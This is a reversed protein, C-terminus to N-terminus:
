HRSGRHHDLANGGGALTSQTNVTSGSLTSDAGLTIADGYSQTSTTDVSGGNILLTGGANSTLSAAKVAQALITVGSSNLALVGLRTTQGVAGSLTIAGTGANLTLAKAGEVAGTVVIDGAGAGTNVTLNDGLNLSSGFNVHNNTTSLTSAASVTVAGTYTQTGSTTVNAGINSAGAVSLNTLGSLAGDIDAAGTIILANNGGALTSQTNVTSGALTRDGGSLTVAGAYIQTGTSTVNAGINSTGSVSLNTVGSFTGDIDAAGTITLANGGGALTSQTNITTGTLMRDGGSLTVAGTYTQTGSTTVNAGINSTGSVSLNTVGTVAGDIDAAGTITLASGGGALTSQTSITSGTLTRDGGSLTVAGTYTQTGSTTVNAGMNSTGSVSLNMVGTVAGDIDAAGTITLANGGGALTSQTNITTGTLTTDAGLTIADGYSQTGTTDVSGGNILMTGGANSVLSAAKVTQALTTTGTSNLTLVGLRTTQGVAGSLTIAGTGASLSLAKAGDVAGTLVIDGAGAGTNITLNEALTLSGGLTVNSNTTALTSAASVTVSGSYTQTGSTTVNAGINSTGSVSLNTVGTVAGDIDAAGTITLASGGGALTSQTSITSGTLTRDGGSLTVAGTYTQTGSTTVNAGMNSTGSVSLNTVGTVAGDIDAAGTITLANGGGALTSQTNITTGTLTTDAGLTIADGYSQTGTTDVSGGNILMTGGANSVLSAAKVTQALTTTGTSNLTLVGLRTTQGVAGSLTIAGTGASLSLAKAGDVAGTLVIDGAGAGTNITLNEALTLSGGLTVNSNTTALTSAASVTVSGSYTQTGSTTVNAGINSTGSVSLNMVGTVAGDIDAAGTITLANGGGALTSQTNVTSGSLTSDAGLTIADGYSQTSTTDVSGGNILLTGGANSTLSAAKVAEALITVGSSNLALVGLRTTQGVAGSLTIAGTGASLSLAKAGDVAGTLVIDGANAGTNITLNEALTLSGGLTVNSNTTALTSAASVTVSGSYTQTGSTTVNAGINSTGSVSLNTVDTVAGDIDAAGTITLANGGGAFTSQTNITSGTLTRDGGSLTVAGTYTQTGSTTVNAGINSTGSVSLNTVGTVAGDIDAAGTITLANGGGALTSQTNITSGTLTRDGGSLTVAGSYTQVGSSTINGGLDAAGSVSLSVLNTAHGDVDVAGTITLANTGGDLTSQTNITSGTLTRAGGSLIVAGTYTQTGTTTVNAGINTAGSVSLQSIGSFAGDIDADGTITLANNGGALTSRNNISSGTLTRAGGSLTVAGTYTQTGTTTVDAGLNSAGSVSLSSLGTYAGDVDAAGSLTLANGGGALTSQTHITLGTLTRAGGSLTVAGTYAQTGTTRVDAAVTVPGAVTLSSLATSGGVAGNLVVAGTNQLTLAAAGNIAGLTLQGQNKFTSAASLTIAGTVGAATSASNYLVGSDSVGTGAVTLANAISYGALDLAAANSVTVAGTGWARAHGVQALGQSVTSAGSLTNDGSLVLTGAGSKTLGFAGGSESIVGSVTLTDGSGVDFFSNATLTIAGAWSSTADKLTGGALTLVEGQVDVGLLDLAAGSAVSTGSSSDGLALAHGVALTGASVLTVGQYTNQGSLTLVGSGAKTLGGAGSIVGGFSTSTGNGGATLTASGLLIQGSGAISGVTDAYGDLGWTGNAEVTVATSNSLANIAASKLTGASIRTAGTFTNVGSLTLTGTGTKTFGGTGSMVGGFTTNAHSGGATLTASGLSINGPGAISGVTDAFGNLSWTANNEVTVATGDTLLNVVGNTLTGAGVSMAGIFTQAASLTLNGAGAKSFSVGTGGVAGSYTSTGSQTVTLTRGNALSMGSSGTLGSTRISIDGTSANTTTLVGSLTVAGGWLTIPGAVTAASGITINGTNSAHGITLGTIGSSYRLFATNFTSSFSNGATPAVTLAGTTNINLNGAISVNDSIISVNSTSATVASGSRFGIFTDTLNNAFNIASSGTNLSIAGSNALLNLTGGQDQLYGLRIGDSGTSSGRSTFSVGGGNSAILSNTGAMGFGEGGLGSTSSGSADSRWVIADAAANTSTVTFTSTADHWGTGAGAGGTVAIAEIKVKGAGANISVNGTTLFGRSTTTRGAIYVDGNATSLTTGQLFVAPRDFNSAVANATLPASITTGSVAYGDGVTLGNWSANGSGGGMWLHGGGTSINVGSYAFIGGGTTEGDSNAWLVVDGGATTISRSAQLSIDGSAKILLDGAGAGASTNLNANVNVVGGYVTMPGAMTIANALSIASTNTTKGITLSGLNNGLSWGSTSFASTFSDGVSQITLAGSTRLSLGSGLSMANANLTIAGTTNGSVGNWGLNVGANFKIGPDNVAAVGTLTIAGSSSYISATAGGDMLIGARERATGTGASGGLTIAGSDTHIQPGNFFNIGVGHSDGRNNKGGIGDILVTGAGGTKILTNTVVDVGIAYDAAASSVWDAGQWGRGRIAVNGNASSGSADITTQDLWLGRYRQGVAGEASGEAYGSGDTGGGLTISGGYSRLTAGTMLIAGGAAGDSNSSLVINGGQTSIDVGSSAVIDKSAILRLQDNTSVTLDNSLEIKGGFVSIPGTVSLASGLTINTTNTSKGITLGSLTSGFNWGSTSFASTFSNAASEIRLAGTGAITKSTPNAADNQLVLTGANITTTGSYTNSATLTLTNSGMKTLSGTGSIANGMTVNDSRHIWVSTNNVIAGALSGAATNNGLYLAGTSVTTNGTFSNNATLFLNAAGTKTLSGTGTAMVGAITLNGDTQTTLAFAGTFANGATPAISLTGADVQIEAAAALTINGTLTNAGSVSRVAGNNSVGTGSLSLADALTIGGTLELAAGGSITTGGASSGLGDSHTVRLVGGTINTAGSYTNAGSLIQTGNGSKTLGVAGSIVGSYDHSGTAPNITITGGTASINNSGLLGGATLTVTGATIGSVGGFSGITLTGSNSYTLSGTGLSATIASISGTGTLSYSQNTGLLALGYATMNGTIEPAKSHIQIYGTSTNATINGLWKIGKSPGFAPNAADALAYIPDILGGTTNSAANAFLGNGTSASNIKAGQFIVSGNAASVSSAASYIGYDSAANTAPTYGSMTVNGGTSTIGGVSFYLGDSSRAYGVLNIDGSATIAGQWADQRIGNLGGAGSIYISGASAVIPLRIYTAGFSTNNNLGDMVINGTDSRVGQTTSGGDVVTLYLGIGQMSVGKLMIDGKARLTNTSNHVTIGGSPGDIGTSFNAYGTMTLNGNFSRIVQQYGWMAVGYANGAANNMGASAGNAFVNIDGYALVATNDNDMRFGAGGANSGTTTSNITISGGATPATTSNGAVIGGGNVYIGFGGRATISINGGTSQVFRSNKQYWAWNNTTTSTANITIDGNARFLGTGYIYAGELGGSSTLNISGNAVLSGSLMQTGYSSGGTANITINGGATPATLSNGAVISSAIDVDLGGLSGRATISVNGGTSQISRGGTLVVGWTGTAGTSSGGQITINGNSLISGSAGELRLTHASSTNLATISIAGHAVLFATDLQLAHSSSGTANITITGGSTPNAESNAAILKGYIYAGGQGSATIAINGATTQFVKNTEVFMGWNGGSTSSSTISIDGVARNVGTGGFYSARMGTSSATATISGFATMAGSAQQLGYGSSGTGNISISGGSTPTSVNNAAVLSTINLYVGSSGVGTVSINGATSQITGSSELVVGWNRTANQGNITVDGGASISATDMVWVGYNATGGVGSINVGGTTSVATSGHLRVGSFSGTSNSNGTISIDGSGTSITTSNVRIGNWVGTAIATLTITGTGSTTVGGSNEFLIGDGTSSGTPNGLGRMTINGGGAQIYQSAGTLFIGINSIGQSAFGATCSFTGACGSTSDNTGGALVVHGGWTSIFSGFRIGGASSNDTDSYAYVSLSKGSSGTVSSSFAIDKSAMLTLSNGQLTNTIAGSITIDRDAAMTQLTTAGSLSSAAVSLSQNTRLTLASNSIVINQISNGANNATFSAANAFTVTHTSASVVGSLTMAGTGGLTSNAAVTVAGSATAADASSNILVGTNGIGTGTINLANAVTRGNLDIVAGSQVTVTGTGMAGSTTSVSNAGARVTGASVTVGGTFTSDGSLTLVGTGQKTIAGSTGSIVGAIDQNSATNLTLRNAGLNIAGDATIASGSLTLNGTLVIDDAYSQAGTTTVTPGSFRVSGGANTSVSAATVAAGLTTTGTSNLQLAGLSKSQGVGGSLSVAGAGANVTFAGNGSYTTALDRVLFNKIGWGEDTWASDLTSDVKFTFSGLAPTDISVALKQDNLARTTNYNGNLVGGSPSLTVAYGSAVSTGATPATLATNEILSRQGIASAGVSFRIVEGDWSELRYVDFSMNRGSGGFNLDRTVSAGGNAFPGLVTGWEAYGTDFATTSSWGTLGTGIASQRQVATASNVTGTVSVAGGGTNLTLTGASGGNLVVLLVQTDTSGVNNLTIAGGTGGSLSTDITQNATAQFSIAEATASLSGGGTTVDGELAIVGGYRAGTLALGLRGTSTASVAGNLYIDDGATLTATVNAAGTHRIPANVVIDERAVWSSNANPLVVESANLLLSDLANTSGVSGGLTISGGTATVSLNRPTSAADSNIAGSFTVGGSGSTITLNDAGIFLNSNITAPGSLTLNTSLTTNTTNSNFTIAGGGSVVSLASGAARTANALAHRVVVIGNSGNPTAAYSQAGGGRGISGTAADIPRGGMGYTVSTGTISSAFGAGAVTGENWGDQANGTAGGGAGGWGTTSSSRGSGGSRQSGSGGARTTYIHWGAGGGGGGAAYSAGGTGATANDVMTNGGRGGGGVVISGFASDGGQTGLAGGSGVLVGLSSETLSLNVGDAVGGGGGGGGTTSGWVSNGGGGGGGVVLYDVASVGYPRYFVSNGTQTFSYLVHNSGTIGSITANMGTFSKSRNLSLIAYDALTGSFGSVVGSTFGINGGGSDFTVPSASLNAVQLNGTVSINAGATTVNGALNTTGATITVGQGASITSGVGTSYNMGMVFSNASGATVSFSGTTSANGVLTVEGTGQLSLNGGATSTLDGALFLNGGTISIPGAVSVSGDVFINATNNPKGITLRSLTTGFNWGMTSVASIFSNGVSEMTMTGTTNARLTQGGSASMLFTLRDSQITINSASATSSGSLVTSGDSGLFIGGASGPRLYMGSFSYPSTTGQPQEDRLTINGSASLVKFSQQDAVLGRSNSSAKGGIGTLTIAGSETQFVADRGINLGFVTDTTTTNSSNGTISIAGSGSTRIDAGVVQVAFDVGGALGTAGYAGSLTINGGNANIVARNGSNAGIFMVTDNGTTTASGASSYSINAGSTSVTVGAAQTITQGTISIGNGSTGASTMNANVFVNGAATLSISGTTSLGSSNVSLSQANSFSLNGVNSAQLNNILNTSATLSVTPKSTGGDSSGLILTNAYIAGALDPGVQNIQTGALLEFTGNPLSFRAGYLNISTGARFTLRNSGSHNIYHNPFSPGAEWGGADIYGSAVVTVNGQGLAANITDTRLVSVGGGRDRTDHGSVLIPASSNAALATYTTTGTTTYGYGSWSPDRIWLDEPDLLWLGDQGLTAKTSVFVNDGLKLWKGSTEVQGGDGGNAGGKALIRGQAATVSDTKRIDSWLVVTGGQGQETASADILVDQGMTVTTAQPLDGTGQWGGGVYVEGGGSYGTTDIRTSDQLLLTNGTITVLGGRGRRSNASILSNGNILVKPAEPAPTLPELPMVPISPTARIHVQGGRTDGDVQVTSSTVTVDRGQVVISGGAGANSSASVTAGDMQLTHTSEIRVEGGQIAGDARVQSLPTLSMSAPSTPSAASSAQLLVKGGPGQTSSVDIVGANEIRQAQIHVEGGQTAGKANLVSTSTLQVKGSQLLIRGGQRTLSSANLQGSNIIQGTLADMATASLIILGDPAHVATKNEVLTAILSPSVTISALKSAPDFNLSVTEAGAMVVTGQQAVILGENRVQPALLAVYGNLATRITGENVVAGTAGNRSFNAKGAMFNADSQSMTTATVAGVDLVASKGFYVGAPNILTVQGPANIKGFIHSPNADRVRNLTAAQANPQNFNVTGASGVNFTGWNIVARQSSQDINLVPASVSGSRGIQAIGAAVQGQTPLENPAPPGAAALALHGALGFIAALKAMKKVLSSCKGHSRATEAVVTWTATVENFVVRYVKNV